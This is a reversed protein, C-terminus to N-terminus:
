DSLRVPAGHPTSLYASEWASRLREVQEVPAINQAALLTELTELWAAFYDDGGDLEANQGHRRLTAAFSQTWARWPLLGAENLAVTLAFIQAHWPQEFHPTPLPCDSM